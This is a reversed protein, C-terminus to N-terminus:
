KKPLFDYTEIVPPKQEAGIQMEIGSRYAEEARRWLRAMALSIMLSLIAAIVVLSAILRIELMLLGSPGAALLVSILAFGLILLNFLLIPLLVFRLKGKERIKAWQENKARLLEENM